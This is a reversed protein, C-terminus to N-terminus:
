KDLKTCIIMKFIGEDIRRSDNLSISEINISLNNAECIEKALYLGIGSGDNFYKKANKGRYERIFIKDIEDKEIKAGIAQIKIIQENKNETISIQIKEGKSTYKIANDIILFPLLEISDYANINSCSVNCSLEITIQKKAAEEKLCKRIKDFTKFFNYEYPIGSRMPQNSYLYNYINLRSSIYSSMAWISRAKENIYSDKKSKKNSKNIIIEGKTKITANFKRIDHVTDNIFKNLYIYNEQLEEYEKFKNIYDILEDYTIIKNDDNKNIKSDVKKKNYKDKIRFATFIDINSNRNLVYTNFGYPCIFLGEEGKEFLDRYFRECKKNKKCICYEPVKILLGNTLEGIGNKYIPLLTFDM